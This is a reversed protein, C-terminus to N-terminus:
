FQFYIFDRANTEGLLVILYMLSVYVLAQKLASLKLIFLLDNKGFQFIQILVVPITFLLLNKLVDLHQGPDISFNYILSDILEILQFQNQSRFIMWSFVTIHFFVVMKIYFVLNHKRFIDQRAVSDKKNIMRFAILLIGHFIGWVIFNWSAGHWLGGLIMTIMLNRNTNWKGSKNGGLPIYLYDRLWTSLSIHWRQWFERPNTAFYPLNFNFSLEFGMISAVGKAICSYGAFDGLIQFTYAYSAMLVTAGNYKGSIKETFVPNVISALNDASYVKLFLGWLILWFGKRIHMTSIKRSNLIQPLLSSAREIPGAVLQPFFAVYLAYDFLNSTYKIKNRYCDITYSMSQFTYFSIGVPLIINLLHPSTSIHFLALLDSLSSSFFDFYKFFGLIGLNSFISSLLLIKKTSRPQVKQIFRAALFDIITSLCILSLFRYDWIAYFFYSAALLFRNQAKHPLLIYIIYVILLFGFFDFTNFLM